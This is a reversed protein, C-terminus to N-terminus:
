NIGGEAVENFHRLAGLLTRLIMSFKGVLDKRRSGTEVKTRLFLTSLMTIGLSQHIESDEM